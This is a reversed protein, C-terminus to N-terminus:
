LGLIDTVQKIMSVVVPPPLLSYSPKGEDDLVIWPKEKIIVKKDKESWQYVYEPTIEYDDLYEEATAVPVSNRVFVKPIGELSFVKKILEGDKNLRDRIPEIGKDDGEKGVMREGKCESNDCILYFEKGDHGVETTPLLVM